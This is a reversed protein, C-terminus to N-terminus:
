LRRVRCRGVVGVLGPLKRVSLQMAIWETGVLDRGIRNSLLQSQTFSETSQNRILGRAHGALVGAISRANPPAQPLVMMAKTWPPSDSQKNKPVRQRSSEDEGGPYAPEQPKDDEIHAQTM